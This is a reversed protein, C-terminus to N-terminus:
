ATIRAILPEILLTAFEKPVSAHADHGCGALEVLEAGAIEAAVAATGQRHHAWARESVGVVVPCRVGAATWPRHARLDALETLLAPGEARRQERTREPLGEWREDGILRRMFAEAADQPSSARDRAAAGATRSPWWPEWSLPPEFAVVGLVQDPQQEAAALVIDGGLSHGVAVIRRGAALDFLDDVHGAITMAGPEGVRGAYGRRDYRLVRHRRDLQRALRAMGSSRDMAGHVLVIVFPEGEVGSETWWEGRM